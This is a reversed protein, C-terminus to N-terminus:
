PGQPGGSWVTIQSGRYLLLGVGIANEDVLACGELPVRRMDYWSMERTDNGGVDPIVRWAM